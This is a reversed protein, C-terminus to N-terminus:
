DLEEELKERYWHKEETILSNLRKNFALKIIRDYTSSIYELKMNSPLMRESYSKHTGDQVFRIAEAHYPIGM